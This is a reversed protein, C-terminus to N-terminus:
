QQQVGALMLNTDVLPHSAFKRIKPECFDTKSDCVVDKTNYEM